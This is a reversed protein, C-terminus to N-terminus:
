GREKQIALSHDHILNFLGLVLEHPLGLQSSTELRNSLLSQWRQRDLAPLGLRAKYEGIAISLKMRRSLLALLKTDIVDIQKRWGILSEDTRNM